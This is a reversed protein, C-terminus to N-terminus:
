ELETDCRELGPPQEGAAVAEVAAIAEALTSVPVMRLESPRRDPLDQCNAVPFLFLDSGAGEAGWIKQMLGGIQGVEGSSTISGTGSVSLGGTLDQETLLDTIALAFILGASPGGIDEVSMELTFPLDYREELAVGLMPAEGGEPIEPIVDVALQEDDRQVTMELPADEGSDAVIARLHDVSTVTTGAAAVLRDGEELVGDAPGDEDIAAVRLDAPVREGLEGLAAVAAATQSSGMLASNFSDREESTVNPAFVDSHHSISQTPDLLPRILSLWSTPQEPSGVMTLTLLNLEGTTPHTTVGDLAIVPGTEGDVEIDGLTDVVPGPREIVFPSPTVSALISVLALVTILIIGRSVRQERREKPM